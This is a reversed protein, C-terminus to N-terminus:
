QQSQAADLAMLVAGYAPPSLPQAISIHPLASAIKKRLANALANEVSLVTGIFALPISKGGMKIAITRVHDTLESAARDVIQECVPDHASVTDIVIRALSALDFNDRYVAAIISEQDKLGFEEAVLKTLNTHEGRGDLERTVANLGDRGIAYGGGEDGIMRGWGGARYISGKEDKGFAISGTGAILIIGPKGKFAGELAVRADSEIRINKFDAGRKRSLSRFAEGMREQDSPRGAGTLGALVCAVDEFECSVARCCEQVMAFLVDSAKEVGIVQFNSAPGKAEGALTGHLDAIIAATKTGGGDLGVVYRNKKAM